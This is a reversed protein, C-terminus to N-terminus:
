KERYVVVLVSKGGNNGIRNIRSIEYFSGELGAYQPFGDVEFSLIPVQKIMKNGVLM